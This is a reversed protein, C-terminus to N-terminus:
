KCAIKKILQGQVNYCASGDPTDYRDGGKPVVVAVESTQMDVTLLYEGHQLPKIPPALTKLNAINQAQSGGILGDPANAIRTLQYPQLQLRYDTGEVEIYHFKADHGLYVGETPTVNYDHTTSLYVDAFNQDPNVMQWQVMTKSDSVSGQTGPKNFIGMDNLPVTSSNSSSDQPVAALLTFRLALGDSALQGHSLSGSSLVLLFLGTCVLLKNGM